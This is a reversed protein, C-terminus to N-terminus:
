ITFRFQDAPDEYPLLFPQSAVPPRIVKANETSSLYHDIGHHKELWEAMGAVGAPLDQLLRPFIRESYAIAHTCTVGRVRGLYQCGPEPDLDGQWRCGGLYCLEWDLNALEPLAVALVELTHDLFLADDEFVLVSRCGQEGAEAVVRRHSLACGIHHNGPTSIAPFRRVRHSIGLKQFREQMNRWRETASDLNICRIADFCDFPSMATPETNDALTSVMAHDDITSWMLTNVAIGGRYTIGMWVIATEERLRSATQVTCAPSEPYPLEANELVLLLVDL